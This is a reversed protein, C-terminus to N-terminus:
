PSRFSLFDRASDVRRGNLASRAMCTYMMVFATSDAMRMIYYLKPLLDNVRLPHSPSRM